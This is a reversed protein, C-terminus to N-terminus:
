VHARGIQPTPSPTATDLTATNFPFSQRRTNRRILLVVLAVLGILIVGGVMIVGLGLLMQRVQPLFMGAAVLLGIAQAVVLAIDLDRNRRRRAM